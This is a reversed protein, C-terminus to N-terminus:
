CVTPWQTVTTVYAKGFSSIFVFSCTKWSLQIELFSQDHPLAVILLRKAPWKQNEIGQKHLHYTKPASLSSEQKQKHKIIM